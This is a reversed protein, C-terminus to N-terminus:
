GHEVGEIRTAAAVLDDWAGRVDDMTTRWGGIAVRVVYRDDLRTHTLFASGSANVAEMAREAVTDDRRHRMCVLSLPHPAALEWDDSDAVWGALEQAMAVHARIHSRLGEIGYTRLVWWLKLSRFRRGLPIHWDRYDIVEGSASAANALYEPLIGLAGTLAAADTVWFASCDFGVLLWKHPNMVYSDAHELGAIMDRHEPCVTASGGFAGDVHLWVGRETTVEAIAAVPDIATSSTTGVTAMVMVPRLGAALDADIAEALAAPDMGHDADTPIRRLATSGLGAVRAAKELSSHAHASAYVTLGQPVGDRNGAGDLARERAALLACLTASSATDQIVGGGPGDSRFAAPLGLADVLWDLVVTEVETVAPSTSWLMGQAGLGSSVLDALVSPPSANAPFYALFSPHQWHTMGDMVVDDLDALLAEFPEGEGPASTPLRAAVEGPEVRSRVPLDAIGAMHDALWDVVQHGHQRFTEPDWHLASPDTPPSTM